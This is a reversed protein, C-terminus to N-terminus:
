GGDGQSLAQAFVAVSLFPANAAFALNDNLSRLLATKDIIRGCISRSLKEQGLRIAVNKVAQKKNPRRM